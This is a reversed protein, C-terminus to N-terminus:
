PPPCREPRLVAYSRCREYDLTVQSFRGGEGTNLTSCSAPSLLFQAWYNLMRKFQENVDDRLFAAFGAKTEMPWDLVANIPTGIQASTDWSPPEAIITDFVLFLTDLDRIEPHGAPDTAYKAPVESLMENFLMYLQADKMVMAKFDAVIPSQPPPNSKVQQVKNIWRRLAAPDQPLWGGVRQVM